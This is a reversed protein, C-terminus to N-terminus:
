AHLAREFLHSLQRPAIVGRGQGAYDTQLGLLSYLASSGLVADETGPSPHPLLRYPQDEAERREIVLAPIRQPNVCEALCLAVLGDETDIDCYRKEFAKWEPRTLLDDVRQNLVKCKACGAKGFVSVRYRKSM